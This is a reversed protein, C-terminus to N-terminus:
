VYLDVMSATRLALSPAKKVEEAARRTRIFFFQLVTWEASGLRKEGPALPSPPKQSKVCQARSATNNTYRFDRRKGM